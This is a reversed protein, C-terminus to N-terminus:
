SVAQHITMYLYILGPPPNPKRRLPPTIEPQMSSPYVQFAPLGSSSGANPLIGGGRAFDSWWQRASRHDDM